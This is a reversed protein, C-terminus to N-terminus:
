RFKRYGFIHTLIKTVSERTSYGPYVKNKQLSITCVVANDKMILLIQVFIASNLKSFQEPVKLILISFWFIFISNSFYASM